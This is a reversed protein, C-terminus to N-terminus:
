GCFGSARHGVFRIGASCVDDRAQLSGAPVVLEKGNTAYAFKLGLMEAYQKAQIGDLASRYAAWRRTSRVMFVVCNAPMM